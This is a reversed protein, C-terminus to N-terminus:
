ADSIHFAKEANRHVIKENDAKPSLLPMGHWAFDVKGHQYCLIQRDDITYKM